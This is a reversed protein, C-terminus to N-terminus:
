LQKKFLSCPMLTMETSRDTSEDLMVSFYNSTKLNDILEEEDVFIQLTVQMDSVSEWCYFFIYQANRAKRLKSVSLVKRFLFLFLNYLKYIINLPTALFFLVQLCSTQPAPAGEFSSINEQLPHCFNMNPLQENTNEICLLQHIFVILFIM